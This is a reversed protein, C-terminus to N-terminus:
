NYSAGAEIWKRVANNLCFNSYDKMSGTTIKIYLLSQEPEYPVVRAYVSGYNDIQFNGEAHTNNHCRLCNEWVNNQQLELFTPQISLNYEKCNAQFSNLIWQQLFAEKTKDEENKLNCVNFFILILVFLIYQNYM